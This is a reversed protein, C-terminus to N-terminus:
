NRIAFNDTKTWCYEDDMKIIRVNFFTGGTTFGYDQVDWLYSQTSAPIEHGPQTIYGGPVPVNGAYLRIKILEDPEFDHVNIGITVTQGADLIEGYPIIWNNIICIDNDILVFDESRDECGAVTEDFIRIWYVSDNVAAQHESFNYSDVVWTFSGDDPINEAITAVTSQLLHGNMLEIGISGMTDHSDWTINLDEGAYFITTTDAPVTWTLAINCAATNAITIVGSEATCNEEGLATIRFTFDGGVGNMVDANWPFFGINESGASILGVRQDAQFLEIMVTDASGEKEWRLNVPDGSQYFAGPLPTQFTLACAAPPPPTTGNDNNCGISVLSTLLLLIWLAGHLVFCKKM